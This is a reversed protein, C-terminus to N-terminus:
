YAVRKGRNGRNSSDKQIEKLTEMALETNDELVAAMWVYKRTTRFDEHGMRQRLGDPTYGQVNNHAKIAYNTAYSNRLGHFCRTEIHDAWGKQESKPLKRIQKKLERILSTCHTTALPGYTKSGATDTPSKDNFFVLDTDIKKDKLTKRFRDLDGALEPPIFVKRSKGGRHGKGLIHIEFGNAFPDLGKDKMEKHGHEIKRWTFNHEYTVEANRLGAYYALKLALEDRAQLLEDKRVKPLVSLLIEFEKEPVYKGPLKSHSGQNTAARSKKIKRQQDSSLKWDFDCAHAIWGKDKLWDFCPKLRGMQTDVTAPDRSQLMSEFYTRLVEADAEFWKKDKWEPLQKLSDSANFDNIFGRLTYATQRRTEWSQNRLSALYFFSPLDVNTMDDSAELYIYQRDSVNAMPANNGGRLETVTDDLDNLDARVVEYQM